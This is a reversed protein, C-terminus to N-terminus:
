CKGRELYNITKSIIDMKVNTRLIVRYIPQKVTPPRIAGVIINKELLENQKRKLTLNDIEPIIKILSNLNYTLKRESILAKFESLNDQIKELAFYALLSDMPSLATTYIVSKARNLLYNIVEGNGLIYAGYSGLAKGLTGMKITKKTDLNYEDTIGMLNKGIVGV